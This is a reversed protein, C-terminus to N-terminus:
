VRCPRPPDFACLVAYVKSSLRAHSLNSGAETKEERYLDAEESTAFLRECQPSRSLTRIKGQVNIDM